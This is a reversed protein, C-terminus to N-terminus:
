TSPLRTVSLLGFGFAKAPGIGEALTARFADPDTVAIRGEFQAGAFTVRRSDSRTGSAWAVDNVRVAEIAFGGKAERRKLWLIRAEDGQVPVRQGNKTRGGDKGGKPIKKTTNARLRFVFTQKAQIDKREQSVDRVSPNDTVGDLALELDDRLDRLYGSPLRSFDPLEKSQVLLVFRGRREDADVRYLVGLHKRPEAGVGDPFLRMVTRHLGVPDALDARVARALPNLYARSLFM